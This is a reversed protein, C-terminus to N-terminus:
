VVYRWFVPGCGSMLAFGVLATWPDLYLLAGLLCLMVFCAFYFFLERRDVWAGKGLLMPTRGLLYFPSYLLFFAVILAWLGLIGTLAGVMGWAVWPLPSTSMPETLVAPIYEPELWAVVLCFTYVPLVVELWRQVIAQGVGRATSQSQTAAGTAM